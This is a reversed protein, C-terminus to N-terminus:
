GPAWPATTNVIISCRAVCVGYHSSQARPPCRSARSRRPRNAGWTSWSSTRGTGSATDERRSGGVSTSKKMTFTLSVLFIGVVLLIVERAEAQLAAPIQLWEVVLPWCMLLLVFEALSCGTTAIMGTSLLASARQPEGRATYEAIYKIYLNSIGFASIGVYSVLIFATSWLGYAELGIHSLVFPPIFVRSVLNGVRASIDVVVNKSLADRVTKAHDEM